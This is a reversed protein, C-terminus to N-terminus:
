QGKFYEREMERERRYTCDRIQMAYIVSKDAHLLIEIYGTVGM